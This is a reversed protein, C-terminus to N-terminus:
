TNIQSISDVKNSQWYAEKFANHMAERINTSYQGQTIFRPIQKAYQLILHIKPFKYYVEETLIEDVLDWSELNNGQRFKVKESATLGKILMGVQEKLLRKNAEAATKKTNKDASFCLSVAKNTHFEQLYQQLYSVTQYTHRLHQTILYFDTIHCNCPIAKNFDQLQVGNPQAQGTYWRLTGTFTNLIVKAFNRM